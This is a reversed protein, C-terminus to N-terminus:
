RALHAAHRRPYSPVSRRARRSWECTIGGLSRAVPSRASLRRSALEGTHGTAALAQKLASYAGAIDPHAILYNRFAVHRRVHLDGRLFAHVHHTRIGSSDNKRFYRRGIIGFEGLSEYGLTEMGTSIADLASSDRVELLIDIIPKAFMGPISTSGIHHIAVISSGLARTIHGAEREFQWPWDPDPAVVRIRM